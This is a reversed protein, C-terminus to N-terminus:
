DNQTVEILGKDSVFEIIAFSAELIDPEFRGQISLYNIGSVKRKSQTAITLEVLHKRLEKSHGVSFVCLQFDETFSRSWLIQDHVTDIVQVSNSGLVIQLKDDPVLNDIRLALKVKLVGLFEEDWIKSATAIIGALMGDGFGLNEAELAGQIAMCYKSAANNRMMRTAVERYSLRSIEPDNTDAYYAAVGTIFQRAAQEFFDM